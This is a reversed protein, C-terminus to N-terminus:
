TKRKKLMQNLAERWKAVDYWGCGVCGKPDKKNVSAWKREGEYFFEIGFPTGRKGSSFCNECARSKLLNHSLTGNSKRLLQFRQRIDDDSLGQYDQQRVSESGTWRLMPLKHDVTLQNHPRQTNDVVDRAGLLTVVREHFASSMTISPKAKTTNGTWKDHRTKKECKTCLHNNSEIVMGPRSKTGRELGQIGSGGAIQTTDVHKYDCERCHWEQDKLVSWVKFVKTNKNTFFSDLDTM